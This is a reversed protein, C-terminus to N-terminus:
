CITICNTGTSIGGRYPACAMYGVTSSAQVPHWADYSEPIERFSILLRRVLVIKLLFAVINAASPRHFEM